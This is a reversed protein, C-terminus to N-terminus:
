YLTSRCVGVLDCQRVISTESGGKEVMKLREKLPKTM